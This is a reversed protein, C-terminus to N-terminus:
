FRITTAGNDDVLHECTTSFHSCWKSSSYFTVSKCQSSDQCSQSCAALSDKVGSGSNVYGGKSADCAKADITVTNGTTTTTPKPTTTTTTPKPTTTTTTPKSTTTTTAPEPTTDVDSHKKHCVKEMVKSKARPEASFHSCFGDYYFSVSECEAIRSCSEGM